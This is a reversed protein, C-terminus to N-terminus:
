LDEKMEIQSQGSRWTEVAEGTADLLEEYEKRSVNGFFFRPHRKKLIGLVEPKLDAPGSYGGEPVDGVHDMLVVEPTSYYLMQLQLLMAYLGAEEDTMGAGSPNETAPDALGTDIPQVREFPNFSIETPNISWKPTESLEKYAATKSLEQLDSDSLSHLTLKQCVQDGQTWVNMQFRM